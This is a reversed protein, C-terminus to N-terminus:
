KSVTHGRLEKSIECGRGQLSVAARFGLLTEKETVDRPLIVMKMLKITLDTM